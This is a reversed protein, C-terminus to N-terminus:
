FGSEYLDQAEQEVLADRYERHDEADMILDTAKDALKTAAEKPMGNLLERLVEYVREGANCFARDYIEDHDM